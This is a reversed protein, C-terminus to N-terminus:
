KRLLKNRNGRAWRNGPMFWGCLLIEIVMRIKDPISYQSKIVAEDNKLNSLYDDLIEQALIFDSDSVYIIKENYLEITPGVRMSGFYDNLVYYHLKELDFISKLILLEVENEPSYLKLM